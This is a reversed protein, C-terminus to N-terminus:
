AARGRVQAIKLEVHQADAQGLRATLLHIAASLSMVTDAFNKAGALATLNENLARELQIVDGAARIAQTMLEGQKGLEQQQAHLLRANQSLATQWQEWRTALQETSTKETQALHAAFQALSQSLSATLATQVQESSQKSVRQWQEHAAAISRQWLEAQREVLQETTKLVGQSMRHMIQVNPDGSLGIMEFKGSLEDNALHEVTTLIQTEGRDLMFQVFMLAISFCLAIATTDFAVYLGSLLGQMATNLSGGADASGSNSLERGLDGLADTIGVVTGLFGLMPTAWIIIRVLSYSDQAQGGAVDSLYKLEEPLSEASGRQLVSDLADRLRRGLYSEQARAPLKALTDLWERAKSVPQNGPSEGLTVASLVSFEAMLEFLKIFLAALGVFFLATEIMNIPHSAFYRLMMQHHLPGRYILAYFGITAGLGLVLPWTLSAFMSALSSREESKAV